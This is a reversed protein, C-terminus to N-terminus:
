LPMRNNGRSPHRQKSATTHRQQGISRGISDRMNALSEDKGLAASGRM